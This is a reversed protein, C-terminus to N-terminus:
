CGPRVTQVGMVQTSSGLIDGNANVMRGTGTVEHILGKFSGSSGTLSFGAPVQRCGVYVVSAAMKTSTLNTITAAQKVATDIVDWSISTVTPDLLVQKLAASAAQFGSNHTQANSAMKLETTTRSMSSIGLLTMILLVVMGVVLAAGGQRAITKMYLNGTKVM